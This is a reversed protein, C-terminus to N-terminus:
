RRGWRGVAVEMQPVQRARVETSVRERTVAAHLTVIDRIDRTRIHVLAVHHAHCFAQSRRRLRDGVPESAAYLPREACGIDLHGGEYSGM